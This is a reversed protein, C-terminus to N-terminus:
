SLRETEINCLFFLLSLCPVIMQRPHQPFFSDGCGALVRAMGGSSFPLRALFCQAMLPTQLFINIGSHHPVVPDKGVGAPFHRSEVIAPFLSCKGGVELVRVCLCQNLPVGQFATDLGQSQSLSLEMLVDIYKVTGGQM